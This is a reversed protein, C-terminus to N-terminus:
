SLLMCIIKDNLKKVFVVWNNLPECGREQQGLQSSRCNGEVHMNKKVWMYIVKGDVQINKKWQTHCRGAFQMNMCIWM